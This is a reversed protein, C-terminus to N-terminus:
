RRLFVALLTWVVGTLFLALGTRVPLGEDMHMAVTWTDVKVALFLVSAVLPGTFLTHDFRRLPFPEQGLFRDGEPLDRLFEADRLGFALILLLLAIWASGFGTGWALQPFTALLSAKLSPLLVVVMLAATAAPVISRSHYTAVALAGAMLLPGGYELLSGSWLPAAAHGREVIVRLAMATFALAGYLWLVTSRAGQLLPTPRWRVLAIWGWALLALGCAMTNGQLRRGEMDVFGLYPLALALLAMTTHVWRLRGDEHARRAFLAAIVVLVGATAMPWTRYHWQALVAVMATLLLIALHMERCTERLLARPSPALLGGAEVALALTLGLAPLWPRPFWPLLGISAGALVLLTAGIWYHLVQGRAGAQYLWVAGALVLCLVRAYPDGAGMLLGAIVLAFALFSEAAHTGQAALQLFRREVHLVLGGALIVLPAYTAPRPLLRLSGHVWIFVEVYTVVLSIGVFWPVRRALALDRDMVAHTFHAVAWATLAFGAYFGAILFAPAYAAPGPLLVRTIPELLVLADLALLTFGLFGLRPHVARSWRLLAPGFLLLYLATMAPVAILKRTVDPDHALLAVAMFNAPLLAVAAGRLTAGTGSLHRDKKELWSATVALTATFGALLVPVITYRLLWNRDWTFYALLSSGVVVMLVGAVM